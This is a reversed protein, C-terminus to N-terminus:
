KETLVHSKFTELQNDSIRLAERRLDHWTGYNDAVATFTAQIMDRHTLMLTKLAKLSEPDVDDESIGREASLRERWVIVRENAREQLLDNTLLYDEMVTEDPVDLFKLTAAAVFGTRDKGATCHFLLPLNDPNFIYEMVPIYRHINHTIIETYYRVAEGLIIRAADPEHARAAAEAFANDPDSVSIHQNTEEAFQPTPREEVEDQRRLDIITQLKLNRYIDKQEPTLESMHGCRYLLGKKITQGATTQYGGLERLNSEPLHVNEPTM